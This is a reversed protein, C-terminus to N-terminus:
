HSLWPLSLGFSQKSGSDSGCEPPVYAPNRACADDLSGNWAAIERAKSWATYDCYKSHPNGPERTACYISQAPPSVAPNEDRAIAPSGIVCLSIIAAGVRRFTAM